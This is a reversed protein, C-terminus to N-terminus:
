KKFRDYLEQPSQPAVPAVAMGANYAKGCHVRLEWRTADPQLTKALTELATNGMNRTCRQFDESDFPRAGHWDMTIPGLSFLMLFALAERRFLISRWEKGALPFLVKFSTEGEPYLARTMALMMFFLGCFLLWVGPVACLALWVWADVANAPRAQLYALLAGGAALNVVATLPHGLYHTLRNNDEFLTSRQFLPM